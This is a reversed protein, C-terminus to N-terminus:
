YHPVSIILVVINYEKWITRLVVNVLIKNLIVIKKKSNLCTKIPVQM